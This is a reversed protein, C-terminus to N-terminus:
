RDHLHVLLAHTRYTSLHDHSKGLMNADVTCTAGIADMPVRVNCARRACIGQMHSICITHASYAAYSLEHTYIHSRLRSSRSSPLLNCQSYVTDLYVYEQHTAEKTCIYMYLSCMPKYLGDHGMWKWKASPMCGFITHTVSEHQQLDNM